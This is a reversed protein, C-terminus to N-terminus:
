QIGRASLPNIAIFLAAAMAVAGIVGVLAMVGIADRDYSSIFAGWLGCYVL